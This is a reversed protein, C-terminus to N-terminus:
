PRAEPMQAIRGSALFEGCPDRETLRIALGKAFARWVMSHRGRARVGAWRLRGCYALSEALRSAMCRRLAIGDATRVLPEGHSRLLSARISQVGRNVARDRDGARASESREALTFAGQPEEIYLFPTAILLSRCYENLGAEAVMDGIRLDTKSRLKWVLGSNSVGEMFLLTARLEHPEVRGVPFWGSRTTENAPRLGVGEVHLRQNTQIIFWDRQKLHEVVTMLFSPFWFNDDELLCGYDGGFVPTPAVCQDVNRVAGLRQSNRRYVIREDAIAEVVDRSDSSSSDDYVVAKWHPYSQAQLSHLARRLLAPRDCATMRVEFDLKTMKPHAQRAPM